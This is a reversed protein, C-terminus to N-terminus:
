SFIVALFGSIMFLLMITLSVKLATKSVLIPVVPVGYKKHLKIIRDQWVQAGNKFIVWFWCAFLGAIIIIFFIIGILENEGLKSFFIVIPEINEFFKLLQDNNNSANL